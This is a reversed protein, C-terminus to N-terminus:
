QMLVRFLDPLKEEWPIRSCGSCREVDLRGEHTCDECVQLLRITTNLDSKMRGLEALREEVFWAKQILVARLRKVSKRGDPCSQRADFLDRIETLAIGAEKLTSIMHMRRRSAEGYLRFGGRSRGEPQILGLGEYYRITRISVGNERAFGGIHVHRGADRRRRMTHGGVTGSVCPRLGSM